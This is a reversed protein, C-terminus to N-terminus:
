AFTPRARLTISQAGYPPIADYPRTVDDVVTVGGFGLKYRAGTVPLYFDNSNQLHFEFALDVGDPTVNEVTVGRYNTTPEKIPLSRICGTLGCTVLLCGVCALLRNMPM